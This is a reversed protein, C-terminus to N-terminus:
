EYQTLLCTSLNYKSTQIYVYVDQNHAGYISLHVNPLKELSEIEACKESNGHMTVITFQDLKRQCELREKNTKKSEVYRKDKERSFM